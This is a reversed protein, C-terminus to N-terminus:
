GRRIMLWVGGAADGDPPLVRVAHGEGRLGEAVMREPEGEDLHVQLSGGSPLKELALRSRIFNLPCPTGRLDLRVQTSSTAPPDPPPSANTVAADRSDSCAV